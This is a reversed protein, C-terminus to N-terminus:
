ESEESENEALFNKALMEFHNICEMVEQNQNLEPQMVILMELEWDCTNWSKYIEDPLKEELASLSGGILGMIQNPGILNNKYDEIFNLARTLIRRTHDYM